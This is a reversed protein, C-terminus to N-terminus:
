AESVTSVYSSVPVDSKDRTSRFRIMFGVGLKGIKRRTTASGGGAPNKSIHFALLMERRKVLKVGFCSKRTSNKPLVVNNKYTNKKYYKIIKNIKFINFFLIIIIIIINIYVQM